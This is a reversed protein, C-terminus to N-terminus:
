FELVLTPQYAKENSKSMIRYYPGDPGGALIKSNLAFAVAKKGELGKRLDAKGSLLDIAIKTPKGDGAPAAIGKGLLTAEGAAPKHLAATEFTWKKEDFAESVFRVELPAATSDAKTMPSEADLYVVLTAKKLGAWAEKVSSVDFRVLSYSFMAEGPDGVSASGDGWVRLLPDDTQDYAHPYIWVDDTVALTHTGVVTAFLLASLM